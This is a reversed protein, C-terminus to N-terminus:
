NGKRNFTRALTTIGRRSDGWGLGVWGLYVWGL